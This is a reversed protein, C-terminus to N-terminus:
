KKVLFYGGSYEYYPNTLNWRDTDVKLIDPMQETMFNFFIVDIKRSALAAFRATSEVPVFEFRIKLQKGIESMMAVNFGAPRGDAAIYDMPPFDGAVGVRLTRAGEPNGQGINAPEGSVPFNTIWEQEFSKILGSEKFLGITRNLENLLVDDEKRLVMVVKFPLKIHGEMMKLSPNRKTYYDATFYPCVVAATNGSLLGMIADSRRNYIIISGPEANILRRVMTEMETQQGAVSVVGIPKGAMQQYSNIKMRNGSCGSLGLIFITVVPILIRTNMEQTKIFENFTGDM